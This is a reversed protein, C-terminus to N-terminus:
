FIGDMLENIKEGMANRAQLQKIWYPRQIDNITDFDFSELIEISIPNLQFYCITDTMNTKYGQNGVQKLIKKNTLGIVTSDEISMEITNKKQIYFERVVSLEHKDINSTLVKFKKIVEAEASKENRSTIFVCAKRYILEVIGISFFALSTLFTVGIWLTYKDKFENLALKTIFSNDSFLITGSIILVILYVRKPLKILNLINNIDV